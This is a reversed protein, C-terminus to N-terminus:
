RPPLAPVEQWPGNCAAIYPYYGQPNDCYYWFESPPLGTPAPPPQQVVIAPPVYTPYPYVPAQYFYWGGGATWWWAFRNDHWGHEWHGDSWVQREYPTFHHFDRGHFDHYNGYDHGGQHDHGEPGHDYASGGQHQQQAQVARAVMMPCATVLIVAVVRRRSGTRM